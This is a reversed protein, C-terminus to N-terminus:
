RLYILPSSTYQDAVTLRPNCRTLAKAVEDYAKQPTNNIESLHALIVHQLKDHQLEELLLKSSANSLHGNRSAIRQKLPWPYPGTELMKPDHNAELILLECNKLHQKVMSTAIGLDTAIAMTTGNQGITFGAPNEADHSISFPHISLNSIYFTQGCEFERKAHLKGLNDSVQDTERNIYVPLKYRRSVIGVGRIHDAHEHSVIIADLSEPSLGRSTLRRELEIGSLGADILISTRGDTVFASNGKSGSALVCIALNYDPPNHSINFEITM